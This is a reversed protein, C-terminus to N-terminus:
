EYARTSVKLNYPKSARVLSEILATTNRFHVNDDVLGHMLFLRNDEDPFESSRLLLNGQAYGKVNENPLGMYRETYATDYFEWNTVPAGAIALKFVDPRLCLGMLSLYGGYSWGHIAIREMDIYGHTKSFYKIAEVQDEIEVPGATGKIHNEFATGRRASGRGDVVLVVYGLQALLQLRLYRLGKYENTVLQVCPGGYVFCVTPWRHSHAGTSNSGSPKIVLGYITVGDSNVYHWLQPHPYALTRITPSVIYSYVQSLPFVAGASTHNSTRLSFVVTKPLVILSSYTALFRDRSANFLIDTYSFGTQTIQMIRPSLYEHSPKLVDSGVSNCYSVSYLHLEVPECKNASFYILQKSTDIHVKSPEVQWEGSTLPIWYVHKIPPVINLGDYETLSVRSSNDVTAPSVEFTPSPLTHPVLYVHRYGTHESLWVLYQVGGTESTDLFELTDTVNMWGAGDEPLCVTDILVHINTQTHHPHTHGSKEEEVIEDRNVGDNINQQICWTRGEHPHPHSYRNLEFTDACGMRMDNEDTNMLDTGSSGDDNPIASCINHVGGKGCVLCSCSDIHCKETAVSSTINLGPTLLSSTSLTSCPVLTRNDNESKEQKRHQMYKVNGDPECVCECEYMSDGLDCVCEETMCRVGGVCVFMALPVCVVRLRQQRRDVLQVWVWLGNPHWGCRVIYEADPFLTRLPKGLALTRTYLKRTLKCEWFEAVCIKASANATGAFPYRQNQVSGDSRVITFQAVESEDVMTYLIMHVNKRQTDPQTPQWWYGTTRDFEEQMVYEAVGATMTTERKSVNGGNANEYTEIISSHLRKHAYNHLASTKGMQASLSCKFLDTGATVILQNNAVDHVFSSAGQLGSPTVKHGQHEDFLNKASNSQILTAADQQEEVSRESLIHTRRATRGSHVDSHSLDVSYVGHERAAGNYGIMYLTNGDDSFVCNRTSMVSKQLTRQARIMRRSCDQIEGWSRRRSNEKSEM